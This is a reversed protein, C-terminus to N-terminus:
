RKTPKVSSPSMRLRFSRTATSAIHRASSDGSRCTDCIIRACTGTASSSSVSPSTLPSRRQCARESYDVEHDDGAIKSAGLRQETEEFTRMSARPREDRAAIRSLLEVAESRDEIGELAVDAFRELDVGGGHTNGAGDDILLCSQRVDQPIDARLFDARIEIHTANCEEVIEFCHGGAHRQEFPVFDHDQLAALRVRAAVRSHDSCPGPESLCVQVPQVATQQRDGGLGSMGIERRAGVAFEFERSHEALQVPTSFHFLHEAAWAQQVNMPQRVGSLRTDRDLAKGRCFLGRCDRFGRERLPALM